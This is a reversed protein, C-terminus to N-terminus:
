VLSGEDIKSYMYIRNGNDMILPKDLEISYYYCEHVFSYLVDTIKCPLNDIPSPMVVEATDGKGYKSATYLCAPCGIDKNDDM